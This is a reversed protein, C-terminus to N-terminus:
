ALKLSPFRKAAANVSGYIKAPEAAPKRFYKGGYRSQRAVGKGIMYVLWKFDNYNKREDGFVAIRADKICNKKAFWPYADSFSKKDHTKM